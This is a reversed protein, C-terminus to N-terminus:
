RKNRRIQRVTVTERLNLLLMKGDDSLDPRIFRETSDIRIDFHKCFPSANIRWGCHTKPKVPFASPMRFSHAPEIAIIADERSYQLYVAPAKGIMEYSKRNLGIVMEKNITVHVRTETPQTPGGIFKEFKGAVIMFFLASGRRQVMSLVDSRFKDVVIEDM